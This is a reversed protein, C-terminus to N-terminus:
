SYVNRDSILLGTEYSKQSYHQYQHFFVQVTHHADTDCVQRLNTVTKVLPAATLLGVDEKPFLFALKLPFFPFVHYMIAHFYVCLIFLM